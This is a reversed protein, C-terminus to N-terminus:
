LRLADVHHEDGYRDRLETKLIKGTATHPIEAVVIYDEPIWWRAVFPEITKRLSQAEMTRGEHLALILRPRETWQRDQRAIVAAERVAPHGVALNELEISSIWEGGSKIVDKVRDVINMFGQPDITAIDGTRFWGDPTFQAEDELNFYRSIIWPGRVELEGRTVGDWTLAVGDADTIRMEVGYPSRGQKLLLAMQEGASLDQHREDLVSVSGLPSTETMGWGQIATVKQAAFREIVVQPCAAGGVVARTMPAISAGQSACFDLLSMYITPVGASITVGEGQIVELLGAGDLRHGPMVLRTGALPAAYPVGWANVHFMPVVPLVTETPGFGFIGPQNVGMAHLVTSRHSYLVGKPNGTTGSTYCLGSATKEDFQPWEFDDAEAAILDEYCLAHPLVTDPMQARSGMIVVGRVSALHPLLAEVLPAFCPDVFLYQDSADNIIYAIQEHFLRPNLTHCVMGAGPVAYYLEFHRYNNWALTGVRDGTKLGLKILAKALKRARISADRYTYRHLSHDENRSVIDKDAHYRAAYELISPILLPGDMMLGQM